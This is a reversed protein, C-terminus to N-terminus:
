TIKVLIKGVANRNQLQMIAQKAKSFPYTKSILPCIQKAELMNALITQNELFIDKERKVFESYFVGIIECNKVLTLNLPIKPIGSPFGIILHRGNWAMTRLAAETYDGGVADYIVDFGAEGSKEKFIKKLDKKGNEDFPGKPYIIIEDAGNELAIQAKEESSVAAFIKAGLAKGIQIAAIGVGGAAGLVLLNECAKLRGRNKLAYLSTGYTINIAAAEEFSINQPIKSLTDIPAIAYEALGNWGIDCFVRDGVKFEACNAGIKEIVGAIEGCPAFPRQAKFQYKDEIILSDRYNIGIAAVKILVENSQPEPCDIECFELKQANGIQTCLYAKM